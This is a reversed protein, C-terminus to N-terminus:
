YKLHGRYPFTATEVDDKFDLRGKVGDFVGTGSGNVIPHQCRGFIEAGLYFGDESCGEYKAEFKYATEFSGEIGNYRGIFLETGQERYTGGPSCDHSEVFVYLCGELNGTLRLAFDAGQATIDCDANEAFFGVGSIQTAGSNVKKNSQGVVPNLASQNMQQLEHDETSCGLVLLVFCGIFFNFKKRQMINKM